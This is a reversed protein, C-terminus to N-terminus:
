QSYPSGAVRWDIRVERAAILWEEGDRVYRDIYVGAHDPGFNTLVFFYIRGKGGRLDPDLEIHMTTLNHRVCTIGPIRTGSTLGAIINDRGVGGGSPYK